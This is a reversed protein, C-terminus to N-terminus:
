IKVALGTQTEVLLITGPHWETNALEETLTGYAVVVNQLTEVYGPSFTENGLVVRNAAMRKRQTM